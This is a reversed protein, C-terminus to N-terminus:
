RDAAGDRSVDSGSGRLRTWDLIQEIMRGMREGSTVIRAGINRSRESEANRLMRANMLVAAHRLRMVYMSPSSPM